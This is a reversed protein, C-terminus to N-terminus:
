EQLLGLRHTEVIAQARNTVGLKGYINGTHKKVTSITIVLAEAIERNSYGECVLQLVELERATLPEILDPEDSGRTVPEAGQSYPAGAATLLKTAYASGAAAAQQLLAVMPAGEDLFRRVYGEPEALSLSQALPDAAAVADGKAQAALSKLLCIEILHATRGAAEAPGQWSNLTAVAKEAEGRALYVRALAIQRAEQLCIPLDGTMERTLLAPDGDAWRYVTEIDGLPLRVRVQASVLHIIVHWPLWEDLAREATRLAELAGDIDGQAQRLRAQACYAHVTGWGIGGRQLLEIGKELCLKARELDNWELYIDGLRAHAAATFPLPSGDQTIGLKILEQLLQASDRLRGLHFTQMDTLMEVAYAALLPNGATLALERAQNFAQTAKDLDDGYQYATGLAVQVRARSVLDDEPLYALAEQGARLITSPEERMAAITTLMAAIEGRLTASEPGSPLDRLGQRADQLRQVADDLHGGLSLAWAQYVRLHPRALVIKEPLAETWRLLATVRGQFLTTKVAQEILSAARKFDQAQFAHKIADDPIGNQEHWASALQHLERIREPPVERRRLNGLLDAFLRHYRYWYHEDDLPVIFLNRQQLCNLTAAGDRDAPPADPPRLADCLPGCLRDLMSTEILFRRVPEPQRRVVEETLYELIYHHGGTFASIFADTAPVDRGQMSLAALQLGAIWGETRAELAKIHQTTLDLGMLQNLFTAAEEPAFRLDSARLEVLQGRVRLRSTPLPPDVRTSIALHMNRPQHDLLFTIGEHIARTSILHYDDLILIMKQAHTSIENLLPTLIAQAGPPQPAQLLKLASEGLDANVTQLAAILYTWFPVADNDEEDLSLWAVQTPPELSATWECLLTTKGFGAPASVLTLKRNLGRNLLELLRSRRVLESRVPPVHLKTKLLPTSM